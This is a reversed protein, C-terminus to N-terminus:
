RAFVLEGTKKVPVHSKIKITANKKNNNQKEIAELYNIKVLNKHHEHHKKSLVCGPLYYSTVRTSMDAFRILLLSSFLFPFYILFSFSHNLIGKRITFVTDPALSLATPM